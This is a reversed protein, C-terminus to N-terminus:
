LKYRLQLDLDTQSASNIEQLGSGITARDFYHTFGMKGTITLRRSVVGQAMLHLRLGQGYFAPFSFNYRPSREYVYLRADYGDTDFFGAGVGTKLRRWQLTAVDSVMYGHHADSTYVGDTQLTNAVNGCQWTLALRGRHEANTVLAQKMDDDRQKLHLRYRGTLTWHKLNYTLAMLNDWAWSSQSVQYRPWAFYAYDSYAQLKLRPSPQWTAGLYAASENQVRGGESMSRAYLSTYRYSYFRQMAMISLTGTAQISVSNITALAGQRNVATEGSINVWHNLYGYDASVNVFDNGQPYHRRYLTSTQPQLSRSLHTYVATAGAHFGRQRWAIHTGADIAHSNHKKDLEAPTRHYGDTVITRITGDDNLTADLPRHSVFTTLRWPKSLRLTVAAGRFYGTQSRSSHPRITNTNRGLQQLTALKGMGFSNNLVLGMGASVKYMGAVANEMPGLRKVQLYYAYFDYGAPNKGAFFPEGADQSGVIGAKVYDKYSFQYRLWHRLPYGAYGNDDGKRRYFPVRANAMVEHSGYRLMTDLRPFHEESREEEIYVFYRLLEIQTHSLAKVMRLENMSKLAGYRYRYEMIGEVQLASLFPLLELEERTAANLNLPEEELACLLDYTDEWEDTEMDEATLTEALLQEWPRGGQAAVTLSVMCLVITLCARMITM